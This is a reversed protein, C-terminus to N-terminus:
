WEYHGWIHWEKGAKSKFSGNNSVIFSTNLLILVHKYPIYTRNCWTSLKAILLQKKDKKANCPVFSHKLIIINLVIDTYLKILTIKHVINMAFTYRYNSGLEFILSLYIIIDAALILYFFIFVDFTAEINTNRWPWFVYTNM